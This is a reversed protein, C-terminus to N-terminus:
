SIADPVDTPDAAIMVAAANKLATLTTQLQLWDQYAPHRLLNRLAIARRAELTQLEALLTDLQKASDADLALIATKKAAIEQEIVAVGASEARPELLWEAATYLHTTGPGLQQSQTLLLVLAGLQDNFATKHEDLVAMATTTAQYLGLIAHQLASLLGKIAVRGMSLQDANLPQTVDFEVEHDILAERFATCLLFAKTLGTGAPTVSISASDDDLTITVSAQTSSKIKITPDAM